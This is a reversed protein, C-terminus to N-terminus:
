RRLIENVKQEMMSLATRSDRDQAISEELSDAIAPYVASWKLTPPTAFSNKVADAYEAQHPLRKFEPKSLVSKRTPINGAKAWLEGHSTMWDIFKMAALLRREDPKKQAPLAFAHSGSWAANKGLLAPFQAAGFNLGEQAELSGTIWVGNFHIGAKGTKFYNVSFEYDLGRPTVKYKNVMDSLAEYAKIGARNNFNARRNEPDLANVGQEKLLSLFMRALTYARYVASTNDAAIGIAKTRSQIAQAAAILEALTDPVKKVGAKAFLDKNYYMIIPHVDMPIAFISGRFRCDSLPGAEFESASIGARAMYADLPLFSGDMAYSILRDQSVVVVDPAAGSSILSSLKVYYSMNKLSDIKVVIEGQSANFAKVMEEFFEGDGGTLPSWLSLELSPPKAQKAAAPSGQAVLPPAAFLSCLIAMGAAIAASGHKM